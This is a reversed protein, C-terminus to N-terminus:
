SERGDAAPGRDTGAPLLEATGDPVAERGHDSEGGKQLEIQQACWLELMQIARRKAPLEVHTYIAHVDEGSSHGMLTKRVEQMVGAEMLRTNFTHRLDHFRVHRIGAKKLLTRWSTKLSRICEDRFTFVYGAPRRMSKLLEFMRSTLPIERAEGEPTKSKTVSLLRRELDVHEWLQNLIEGRRMGTDLAAIIMPRVHETAVALLLQEEALSLVARKTRRERFMKIRGIPNNLLLSQDVAWYLIHRTVSIDRNLTADKLKPNLARRYDCYDGVMGKTIRVIPVDSFYPLLNKFRELHYTTAKKDAIFRAVVAGFTMKPDVQAVNFRSLNADQKLKQLVLEAQKRNGTGTSSQHRIGDLYFYAWWVNGRKWLGM